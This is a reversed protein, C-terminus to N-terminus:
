KPFMKEMAAFLAKLHPVINIKDNRQKSQYLSRVALDFSSVTNDMKRKIADHVVRHLRISPNECEDSLILSSNRIKVGVLEGDQDKDAFLVYNIVIEMPLSEYSAMSLFCFVHRLVLDAEAAKEVALLVATTMTHSYAPNTDRLQEQTLRIKGEDLKQLYNQWSFEAKSQQVQKLYVGAAALALPQYDLVKAVEKLMPDEGTGSVTKLLRCSENETM